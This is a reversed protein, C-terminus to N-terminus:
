FVLIIGLYEGHMMFIHGFTNQFARGLCLGFFNSEGLFEYDVTISFKDLVLCVM